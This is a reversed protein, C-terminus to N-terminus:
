APRSTIPDASYQRMFERLQDTSVPRSFHYGQVADCGHRQLFTMQAASEVGEAIVRLHLAHGMAIIAKIIAADNLDHPIDQVFSRDIKVSDLPFRKLQALSSYGTGFDDVAIQVGMAQLASLIEVARGPDQIVLSETVELELMGGELGYRRLAHGIDSALDSAAFQRASLNIAVPLVPEGAARWAAMQRCAENLVWRGIDVIDGSAEALPIFTAPALLGHQPHMWRVLAEVGAVRGSRLDLKPQYLLALENRQTVGPLDAQLALKHLSAALMGAAYHCVMNGGQAKAQSMAFDAGRMLTQADGGDDPFHCLGISATHRVAKQDVEFAEALSTLVSGALRRLSDLSAPNRVLVVFEDAGLRAVEDATGSAQRLRRAAQRLVADGAKEGLSENVQKFRDLDIFLLGACQGRQRARSLEEELLQQFRARNPLGTLSDYSTLDRIRRQALYSSVAVSALDVVAPLVQMEEASPPGPVRHYVAVTGLVQGSKGYFPWSFCAKLGCSEALERYKRWLPDSAIDTTLVPERRYAAAGCSGTAPDVSLKLVAQHFAAPVSSGAFRVFREGSENLLLISCLAAPSVREVMRAMDELIAQLDDGHLVMKMVRGQAELFNALAAEGPTEREARRPLFYARRWAGDGALPRDRQQLAALAGAELLPHLMGLVRTTRGGDDFAVGRLRAQVAAGGSATRVRLDVSARHRSGSLCEALASDLEAHDNPHVLARAAMADLYVPDDVGNGHDTWRRGICVLDDELQWVVAIVELAEAVLSLLSLSLGASSEGTSSDDSDDTGLNM